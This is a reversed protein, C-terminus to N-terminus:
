ILDSFERELNNFVFLGIIFIILTVVIALGFNSWSINHFSPLSDRVGNIIGFLPNIMLWPAFRKPLSAATYIVPSLFFLVQILFPLIYRVDRYKVNLAGLVLGAGFGFMTTLILGLFLMLLFPLSISTKFIIFAVILVVLMILCDVISVVTASLPILINPFYVKQVINQNSVISNGVSTVINSFLLWLFMGIFALVPYPVTTAKAFELSGFVYSFITVTIVPQIVAWLVGLVTQKYRVKLDRWIFFYLLERFRIIAQLSDAIGPKKNTIVIEM